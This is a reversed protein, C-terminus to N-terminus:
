KDVREKLYKVMTYADSVEFPDYDVPVNDTKGQEEFKKIIQGDELLASYRWSRKGFGKNSKDVLMNLKDTLEGNGDPLMKVQEIGLSDAWANMVFRDNVSVCYIDDVYDLLEDAMVEFEPLHRSSCTPTFAGPLGFIIVKKDKFLLSYDEMNEEKISL